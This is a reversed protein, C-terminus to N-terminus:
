PGSSFAEWVVRAVQLAILAILIYLARRAHPSRRLTERDLTAGTYLPAGHVGEESFYRMGSVPLRGVLAQASAIMAPISATPVIGKGFVALGRRGLEVALDADLHM